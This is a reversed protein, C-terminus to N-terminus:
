PKAKKLRVGPGEGNEEVFIVGAFELAHQIALIYFLKPQSVGGETKKVTTLGTRSKEALELQSWGLLHRARKVQEGTITM